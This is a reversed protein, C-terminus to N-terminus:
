CQDPSIKLTTIPAGNKGKYAYILSVGHKVFVKMKQSTCLRKIVKPRVTTKIKDASVNAASFNVVTYNYKLTTGIAETSDLRTQTDVMMPLRDNITDSVKTLKAHVDVPSKKFQTVVFAIALLILINGVIKMNNIGPKNPHKDILDLCISCM